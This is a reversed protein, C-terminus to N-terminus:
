QARAIPPPARDLPSTSKATAVAVPAPPSRQEAKMAELKAEELADIFSVLEDRGM